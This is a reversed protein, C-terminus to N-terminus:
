SLRQAMNCVGVEGLALRCCEFIKAFGRKNEREPLDIEQYSVEEDGWTHSLIVYPSLRERVGEAQVYNHQLSADKM